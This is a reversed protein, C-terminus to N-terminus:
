DVSTVFDLLLGLATMRNIELINHCNTHYSKIRVTDIHIIRWLYFNLLNKGRNPHHVRHNFELNTGSAM